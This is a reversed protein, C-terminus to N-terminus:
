VSLIKKSDRSLHAHWKPDTTEMIWMYGVYDWIYIKNNDNNNNNNNNNTTTTTTITHANIIIMIM